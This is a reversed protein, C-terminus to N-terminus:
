LEDRTIDSDELVDHLWAACCELTQEIPDFPKAVAAPHHIYEVGLKDKQGLHAIVAITQARAALELRAERTLEAFPHRGWEPSTALTM